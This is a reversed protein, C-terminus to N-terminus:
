QKYGGQGKSTRNWGKPTDMEGADIAANMNARMGEIVTANMGVQIIGMYDYIMVAAMMDENTLQSTGGLGAGMSAGINAGQKGWADMAKAWDKSMRDGFLVSAFGALAKSMVVVGLVLLLWAPVSFHVGGPCRAKGRKSTPMLTFDVVATTLAGGVVGATRQIGKAAAGAVMVAM